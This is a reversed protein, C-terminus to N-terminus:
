FIPELLALPLRALILVAILGSKAADSLNQRTNLILGGIAAIVLSTTGINVDLWDHRHLLSAAVLWTLGVAVAAGAFVTAVSFQRLPTPFLSALRSGDIVRTTGTQRKWIMGALLAVAGTIMLAIGSQSHSLATALQPLKSWSEAPMRGTVVASAILATVALAVWAATALGSIRRQASIALVMLAVIGAAAVTVWPHFM